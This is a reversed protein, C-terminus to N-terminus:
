PINALGVLRFCGSNSVQSVWLTQILLVGSISIESKVDCSKNPEGNSKLTAVVRDEKVVVILFLNLKIELFSSM